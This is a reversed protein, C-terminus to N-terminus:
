VREESRKGNKYKASYIELRNTYDAATSHDYWSTPDPNIPKKKVRVMKTRTYYLTNDKADFIGPGNHYKYNLESVPEIAGSPMNKDDVPVYYLKLYPNGTWSYIDGPSYVTTGYKRDTTLLYGKDIPILGFDSNESNLNDMNFVDFYEPNAIWDIAQECASIQKDTEQYKEPVMTKFRKFQLIAEPYNGESKLLAAYMLVDEPTANELSVVKSMAEMASKTDNIKLYCDALNRLDAIAPTHTQFHNNYIDIAKPYEYVAMMDQAKQLDDQASAQASCVLCTIIMVISKVINYITKM